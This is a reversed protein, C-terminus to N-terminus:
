TTAPVPKRLAGLGRIIYGIAFLVAAVGILVWMNSLGMLYAANAEFSKAQANILALEAEQIGGTTAQEVTFAQNQWSLATDYHDNAGAFDGLSYLTDAVDTENESKAWLIRATTSNFGGPPESVQSIIRAKQRAAMQVTSYIAFDPSTTYTTGTTMTGALAGTANLHNVYITYGHLVLNSVVTANPVTFTVTFFRVEDINMTVVPGLTTTYNSNWDFGVIIESVNIKRQVNLSDRFNNNVQIWLTATSGEQYGYVSQGYYDDTGWSHISGLWTRSQVSATAPIVMITATLTLAVVLAIIPLPKKM